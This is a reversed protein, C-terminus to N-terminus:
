EGAGLPLAFFLHSNYLLTFETTTSEDKKKRREEKKRRKEGKKRKEGRREKEKKKRFSRWM